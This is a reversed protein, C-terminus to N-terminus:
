RGPSSSGSLATQFQGGPPGHHEDVEAPEHREAGHVPVAPRDAGDEEAAAGGPAEIAMVRVELPPLVPDRGVVDHAQDILGFEEDGAYDEGAPFAGLLGFGEAAERFVAPVPPELDRDVRVPGEGLMHRPQDPLHILDRQIDLGRPLVIVIDGVQVAGPMHLGGEGAVAVGVGGAGQRLELDDVRHDPPVLGIDRRDRGRRLPHVEDELLADQPPLGREGERLEAGYCVRKVPGTLIRVFSTPSTRYRSPTKVTPPLM